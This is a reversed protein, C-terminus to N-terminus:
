QGGAQARRSLPLAAEIVPSRDGGFLDRPTRVAVEVAAVVDASRARLTSAAPSDDM